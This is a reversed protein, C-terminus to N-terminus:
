QCMASAFDKTTYAKYVRGATQLIDTVKSDASIIKNNEMVRIPKGNKIYYRYQTKIDPGIAPGGVLSELCFFVNGAHYYYEKNWSGDGISGSETIKVIAKNNFYYNIIGGEVCGDVEYTFQQKELKLANIAQFAQRISLIDPEKNSQVAAKGPSKVAVPQAILQTVPLLFLLLAISCYLCKLDNTVKM